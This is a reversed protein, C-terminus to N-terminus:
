LGDVTKVFVPSYFESGNQPWSSNSIPILSNRYPIMLRPSSLRRALIFAICVPGGAHRGRVQLLLELVQSCKHGKPEQGRQSFLEDLIVTFVNITKQHAPSNNHVSSLANDKVLAVFFILHCCSEKRPPQAQGKKLYLVLGQWNLCHDLDYLMCNWSFYKVHLLLLKQSQLATVPSFRPLTIERLNPLTTMSVATTNNHLSKNKGWIFHSKLASLHYYM